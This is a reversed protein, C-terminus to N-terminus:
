STLTKIGTRQMIGVAEKRVFNELGDLVLYVIPLLVLTIVTSLSLGSIIVIGLTAYPIGMVKAGGIAVPLLGCVTTATTMMVARFRRSCGLAVADIRPYGQSRLKLIVDILIIANNVVIGVLIILGLRAMPDLKFNLLWLGAMGFLVAFPVTFLIGLPLIISEFLGALLLYILFVSLFLVFLSQAKMEAVRKLYDDTKIGYGSKFPFSAVIERTKLIASRREFSSAEPDFEVVIRQGVMSAKRRASKLQSHPKLKGLQSLPVFKDKSSAIRLNEFHQQTWSGGEPNIKVKTEVQNGKHYLGDISYSRMTGLIGKSIDKAELSWTRMAEKSPLFLLSKKGKVDSESQVQLVGPIEDISARLQSLQTELTSMIPGEFRFTKKMKRPGSKYSYSSDGVQMGPWSPATITVAKIKAKLEALGADSAYEKPPYFLFSGWRSKPDFSSMVFRYPLQSKKALFFKELDMFLNRRKGRDVSDEFTVSLEVWPDIPDEIDTEEIDAVGQWVFFIGLLLLFAIRGRYRIVGQFFKLIVGPTLNEDTDIDSGTETKKGVASSALVPIAILAVLWSVLLGAVIPFQFSKLLMTFTDESEVFAAPLFIIITTMTSMLLPVAVDRAAQVAAAVLSMRRQNQQIREVVVIANDVILGISLILGSLTVMNLSTGKIELLAIVFIMTVPIVLSILLTPWIRRIFTYVVLFTIFMAMYLSEFVDTLARDLEASRDMLWVVEVGKLEPIIDALRDLRQALKDKLDFINADPSKYIHARLAKRGNRHSIVEEFRNNISIPAIQELTLSTGKKVVRKAVDWLDDIVLTSRLSHRQRPNLASVAGMNQRQTTKALAPGLDGVRHENLTSVALDFEVQIPEVGELEARAVGPVTTIASKLKKGLVEAANKMGAPPTIALTIVAKDTPNFRSVSVKKMELIGSDALEELAETVLFVAMDMDTSKQFSIFFSAGNGKVTTDVNKINGVTRIAGEVPIALAVEIEEVKSDHSAKVDLYLFPNESERPMVEVPIKTWAIISFVMFALFLLSVGLRKRAILYEFV